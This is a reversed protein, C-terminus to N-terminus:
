SFRAFFGLATTSASKSNQFFSIFGNIFIDVVLSVGIYLNTPDATNIAYIIFCAIAGSWMLLAFITLFEHILKVYWPTVKKAKLVNDGDRLNRKHAEEQSLGEKLTTTTIEHKKLFEENRLRHDDISKVMDISQNVKEDEPVAKPKKKAPQRSSWKENIDKIKVKYREEGKEKEVELAQSLQTFGRIVQSLGASSM